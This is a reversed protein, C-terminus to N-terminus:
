NTTFKDKCQNTM